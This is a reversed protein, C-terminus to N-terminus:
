WPLDTKKPHAMPGLEVASTFIRKELAGKTTYDLQTASRGRDAEVEVEEAAAEEELPTLLPIAPPTEEVSAEEQLPTEMTIMPPAEMAQLELPKLREENNRLNGLRDKREAEEAQIQPLANASGPAATLDLQSEREPGQASYYITSPRTEPERDPFVGKLRAPPPMHDPLYGTDRDYDKPLQTQHHPVHDFLYTLRYLAAKSSPYDEYIGPDTSAPSTPRPDHDPMQYEIEYKDLFRLALEFRKNLGVWAIHLEELTDVGHLVGFLLGHPDVIFYTTQLEGESDSCFQQQLNFMESAAYKHHMGYLHVPELVQLGSPGEGADPKSVEASSSM